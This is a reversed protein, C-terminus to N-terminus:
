KELYKEFTLLAHQSFTLALTRLLRAEDREAINPHAGEESMFGYVKWIAEKTARSIFTKKELYDRVEVAKNPPDTGLGEQRNIESAIQKLIAEWFGRANSVSDFWKEELYQTESNKLHYLITVKDELPLKDVLVELFAREDAEVIVSSEIPYIAGDSYIYGDVELQKKLLDVTDFPRAMAANTQNIITITMADTTGGTSLEEPRELTEFEKIIDASLKNLLSQSLAAKQGTDMTITMTNLSEGTHIEKIFDSLPVLARIAERSVKLFEPTYDRIYLFEYLKDWDTEPKRIRSAAATGLKSFQLEYIEGLYFTSKRSIM